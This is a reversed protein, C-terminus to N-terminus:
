YSTNNFIHWLNSNEGIIKKVIYNHLYLHVLILKLVNENNAAIYLRCVVNSSSKILCNLSTTQKRGYVTFLTHREFLSKSTDIFWTLTSTLGYRVNTKCVYQVTKFHMNLAQMHSIFTCMFLIYHM